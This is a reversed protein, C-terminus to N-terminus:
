TTSCGPTTSTVRALHFDFVDATFWVDCPEKDAFNAVNTLVLPGGLVKREVLVLQLNCVKAGSEDHDNVFDRYLM